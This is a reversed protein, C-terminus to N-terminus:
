RSRHHVPAQRDIERGLVMVMDNFGDTGHKQTLTPFLGKRGAERLMWTLDTHSAQRGTSLEDYTSSAVRLLDPHAASETLIMRTADKLDM